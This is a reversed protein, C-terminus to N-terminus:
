FKPCSILINKRKKTRKFNCFQYSMSVEHSGKTTLNSLKSLTMDYSYGLKYKEINIGFLFIVADNNAYTNNPKYIPLGRYWCGIVFLNKNYYIGLDAQNFKNQKKYNFAFTISHQNPIKKNSAAEPEDLLYKYGGHIKFEPPLPSIGNLLSQNPKNIHAASFGAWATATYILLGFGADFYNIGNGSFGEVSTSSQRAIQDGFTFSSFDVKRQITGLSLGGRGMMKKNIRAEYAYLFSVQTTSLGGLGARDGFLQLGFGSKMTRVYHDYSAQYTSFDGPIGTWQKRYNLTVRSCVNAGTFAPNLYTPAAYFQSFQFHQGSLNWSSFIVVSIYFIHFWKIM